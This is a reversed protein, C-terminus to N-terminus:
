WSRALTEEAKPERVASYEPFGPLYPLLAQVTEVHRNESADSWWSPAPSVNPRPLGRRARRWGNIGAQFPQAYRSCRPVNSDKALLSFPQHALSTQGCGMSVWNANVRIRMQDVKGRVVNVSVGDKPDHFGGGSSESM